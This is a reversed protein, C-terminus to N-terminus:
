FDLADDFDPAAKKEKASNEEDASQLSIALYAKGTQKSHEKWGSLFFMRGGVNAKGTYQPHKDTKRESPEVPFLRARNDKLDFKGPMEDNGETAPAISSQGRRFEIAKTPLGFQEIAKSIFAHTTHSIWGRHAGCSTCTLEGVHPGNSSGVTATYEGCRCADPPRVFLGVLTNTSPDTAFFQLQTGM